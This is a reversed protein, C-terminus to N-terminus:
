LSCRRETPGANFSETLAFRRTPTCALPFTGYRKVMSRFAGRASSIRSAEVRDVGRMPFFGTSEYVKM